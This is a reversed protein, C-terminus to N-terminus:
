PPSTGSQTRDTENDTLAPEDALPSPSYGGLEQSAAEQQRGGGAHGFPAGQQAEPINRRQTGRWARCLEPRKFSLSSGAIGKAVTIDPAKTHKQKLSYANTREVNQDTMMSPNLRMMQREGAPIPPHPPCTPPAPVANSSM